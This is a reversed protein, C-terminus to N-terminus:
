GERLVACASKGRRRHTGNNGEFPEFNNLEVGYHVFTMYTTLEFTPLPPYIHTFPNAKGTGFTGQGPTELHSEVFGDHNSITYGQYGGGQM